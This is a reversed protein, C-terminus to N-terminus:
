LLTLKHKFPPQILTRACMLSQNSKFREGKYINTELFTTETDSIGVTFKLTPHRKNAQEIFQMMETEFSHNRISCNFDIPDHLNTSFVLLIYELHVITAISSSTQVDHQSTMVPIPIAWYFREPNRSLPFM